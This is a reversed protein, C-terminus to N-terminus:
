YVVDARARGIFEERAGMVSVLPGTLQTDNSWTQAHTVSCISRSCSRLGKRILKLLSGVKARLGDLAVSILDLYLLGALLLCEIIILCVLSLISELM